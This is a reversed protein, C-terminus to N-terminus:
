GAIPRLPHPIRIGPLSVPQEPHDRLSKMIRLAGAQESIAQRIIIHEGLFCGWLVAVSMAMGALGQRTIAAFIM